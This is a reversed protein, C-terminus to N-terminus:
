VPQHGSATAHDGGISPITLATQSTRQAALARQYQRHAGGANITLACVLRGAHEGEVVLRGREADEEIVALSTADEPRGASRIRLDWQDTWFTPVPDYLPHPASGALLTAAAAQAMEVAHSWHELHRPRGTWADRWAAVDGAAVIGDIGVATCDAECLVRGQHFTLGTAVLWGTNPAGGLACLVVDAEVRTGDGLLVTHVRDTGAIADVTTGLHLQVGHARHRAAVREGIATGLAPLPLASRGVLHVERVGRTRLSCAAESGLFGAGAIVVRTDPALERDLGQVDDLSRLTHVGTAPMPGPWGAARSGTAIVLAEYDLTRGDDLGVTRAGPDLTIAATGLQWDVALDDAPFPRSSAKGALVQKSLPPRNYPRHPEQGVLTIRGPFGGDRLAEAARLGALGAGVVVIKEQSRM